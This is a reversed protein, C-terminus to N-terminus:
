DNSSFIRLLNTFINWFDLLFGIAAGLHDPQGMEYMKIAFHTDYAIFATFLAVAIYSSSKMMMVSFLNPGMFFAAGLGALQLAILGILSGTLVRGYGLMKDKPMQYAALSAGGFIAATLGLCTPVITPSVMAAFQLLPATGLGLGIIGTGYLASRLFSNRSVITETQELNTLKETVVIYEPKMWSAGILGVLSAVIGGVALAGGSIPLSMALYSTGLAGLVSLGTTNYVKQLFRNLGLNKSIVHNTTMTQTGQDVPSHHYRQNAFFFRPTIAKASPAFRQFISFAQRSIM